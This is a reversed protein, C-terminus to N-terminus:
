DKQQISEIYNVLSNIKAKVADPGDASRALSDGWEPMDKGGHGKIPNRGDIIRAVNDHPFTGGNSKAIATLDAPATRLSKAFPGDGKGGSGHCTVCYSDFLAAGSYAPTGGSQATGRTSFAVAALALTVVATRRAWKNNLM